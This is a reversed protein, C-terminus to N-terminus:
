EANRLLHKLFRDKHMREPQRIGIGRDTKIRGRHKRGNGKIAYEGTGFEEWIANELNSGVQLEASGNKKVVSHGYSGKTEGTDVRSNRAYDSIATRCRSRRSFEIDRKGNRFISDHMIKLIMIEIGM